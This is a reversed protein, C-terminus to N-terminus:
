FIDYFIDYFMLETCVNYLNRLLNVNLYLIAFFIFSRISQFGISQFSLGDAYDVSVTKYNIM